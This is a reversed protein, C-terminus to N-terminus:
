VPHGRASDPELERQLAYFAGCLVDLTPRVQRGALLECYTAVSEPHDPHKPDPPPLEEVPRWTWHPVMLPRKYAYWRETMALADAWQHHVRNRALRLGGLVQIGEAGAKRMRERWNWGLPEGDPRWDVRARDDVMVAWNLAEVLATYTRIRDRRRAADDFRNAADIFGAVMSEVSAISHEPPM